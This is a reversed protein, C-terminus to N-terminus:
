VRCFRLNLSKFFFLFLFRGRANKLYIMFIDVTTRLFQMYLWVSTSGM